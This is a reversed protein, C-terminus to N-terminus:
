GVGVMVGVGVKPGEGVGTGCPINSSKSVPEMTFRSVDPPPCVANVDTAFVVSLGCAPVCENFIIEVAFPQPAYPWSEGYVPPSPYLFSVPAVASSNSM